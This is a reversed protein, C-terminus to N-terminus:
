YDGWYDPTKYRTARRKKRKHRKFANIIRLIIWLVFIVAVGILGYAIWRVYKFQWLHEFFSMLFGLPHREIDVNSILAARAIEQGEYYYHISGIEQGNTIPAYVKEPLEIKKEVQTSVEEQSLSKPLLGYVKDRTVVTLYDQGNKAQKLGVEGLIQTADELLINKYNDVGYELLTKSDTHSEKISKAKLVVAVFETEGSKASSVLCSGAQSTSGTKIGTAKDYYYDPYRLKSVLNNTNIYYREETKNTAPIKIHACDVINRFGEHKMAECAFKALDEATTYHEESHLGHPNIFHTDTAGLEQARTNMMEAFNEITGGIRMAIVAAADNGSALLLGKLLGDFTIVEDVELYMSSGDIALGELHEETVTISEELSLEGRDIAEFALLATLVKTTSAPFMRKTSEKGYLVNGTNLDVLVVSEAAVDPTKGTKKEAYAITTLLNLVFVFTLIYGCLKKLKTKM